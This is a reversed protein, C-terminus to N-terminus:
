KALIMRKTETFSPTVLQYFYVGSPVKEGRENQANWRVVHTGAAFEGEALTRINEGLMSFIKIVGHSAEPLAFRIETAPNFPNPYNQSLAYRKPLVPEAIDLGTDNEGSNDAAKALACNSDVTYCPVNEVATSGSGQDHPVSVKFAAITVNGNADSVKLNITYVRGNGSAAREKRLQVSQCDGAIVIDDTTSGDGNFCVHLPDDILCVVDPADEPEDSSVSAIKVESVPISGACADNVSVVIQAISITTYKHNPPWLAISPQLTIEPPTTDVVNVIVEDTATAGKDDEVTLVITHMGFALSVNPTVGTAIPDPNGNERWTYTLPDNNPDSSGSGDLTVQTGAPSACEVTQDDGADAVPPANSSFLYVIGANSAGTN